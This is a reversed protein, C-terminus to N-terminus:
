NTAIPGGGSRKVKQLRYRGPKRTLLEALRREASAQENYPFEEVLRLGEFIGWSVFTKVRDQNPRKNVKGCVRRVPNGTEPWGQSPPASAALELIGAVELYECETLDDIVHRINNLYMREALSPALTRFKPGAKGFGLFHDFTVVPWKMGQSTLKHPGIGIWNVRGAIGSAHAEPGIGGVGIVADFDRGRVAGMCDHAGFCGFEDPDGDHTRKYVLVRLRTM